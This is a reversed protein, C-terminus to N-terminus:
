MGEEIYIPVSTESDCDKGGCITTLEFEYMREEDLSIGYPSQNFFPNPTVYTFPSTSGIERYGLRLYSGVPITYNILLTKQAM